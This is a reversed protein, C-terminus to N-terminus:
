NKEYKLLTIENSDYISVVAEGGNKLYKAGVIIQDAIRFSVKLSVKVDGKEDEEIKWFNLFSDESGTLIECPENRVDLSTIIRAHSNIELLIDMNKLDWLKIKGLFDGSVLYHRTKGQMINLGTIPTKKTNADVEKIFNLKKEDKISNVTLKGEINALILLNESQSYIIQCPNAGLVGHSCVWSVYNGNNGEEIFLIENLTNCVALLEKNNFAVKACAAFYHVIGNKEIEKKKNNPINLDIHGLLNQGNESYIKVCERLLVVLKWAGKLNEYSFSIM